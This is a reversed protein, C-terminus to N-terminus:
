QGILGIRQGLARLAKLQDPRLTVAVNLVTGRVSQADALMMFEAPTMAARASVIYTDGPVFPGPPFTSVRDTLNIATQKKDRATAVLVLTPSLTRGTNLGAGGKAIMVVERAPARPDRRLKIGAFTVLLTADPGELHLGLSHEIDPVDGVELTWADLDKFNGMPPATMQPDAALLTMVGATLMAM